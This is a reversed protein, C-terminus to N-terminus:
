LSAKFMVKSMKLVNITQPWKMLKDKSIDLYVIKYLMVNEVRLIINTKWNSKHNISLSAYSVLMFVIFSFAHGKAMMINLPNCIFIPFDTNIVKIPKPILFMIIFIMLTCQM